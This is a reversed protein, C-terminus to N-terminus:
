RLAKKVIRDSIAHTVALPVWRSALYTLKARRSPIIMYRGRDIGALMTRVAPDLALSGATHKLKITAATTTAREEEVMPTEVEPPCLVSVEVGSAKLEMRLVEALGIVGFKSASYASYGYNAVLGGLSATLVLRSGRTLHPVVAAALNRSGILNIDIVRRYTAEDVSHFEHADIVGACHIVLNPAGVAQVADDIAARLADGDRVDAEILTLREANGGTARELKTRAADSFALDVAILASGREALLEAFRGGIGSAAGTVLVVDTM